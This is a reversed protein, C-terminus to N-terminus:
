TGLGFSAGATWAAGEFEVTVEIIGALQATVKYSKFLVWARVRIGTTFLVDILRQTGAKMWGDITQSGGTVPDLDDLPLALRMLSGSIDALALLKRRSGASDFSTVDALDGAFNFEAAKAETITATPIYSADMTVPGTVTYGGVFTVQGFLYDISAINAAAVTVGNDKVTVAASPDLIRRATNTIQYTKGSVFTTAEGTTAVAAGSVKVAANFAPSAASM